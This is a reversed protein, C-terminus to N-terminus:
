GSGGRREQRSQRSYRRRSGIASAPRRNWSREIVITVRSRHYTILASKQLTGAAITVSPRSVGLLM